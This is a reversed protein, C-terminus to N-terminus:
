STEFKDGRVITVSAGAKRLQIHTLEQIKSVIGKETKLEYFYARGDLVM